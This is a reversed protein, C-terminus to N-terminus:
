RWYKEINKIITKIIKNNKIDSTLFGTILLKLATNYDIGRSLLYFM